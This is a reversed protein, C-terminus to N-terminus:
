VAHNDLLAAVALLHKCPKGRGYAFGKCTCLDGLGPRGCFVDYIESEADTGATIKELRFARGGDAPFEALLYEVRARATDITLLGAHPVTESPTFRIANHESGRTAPLVESFTTM